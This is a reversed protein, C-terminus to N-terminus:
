PLAARGVFVESRDLIVLAQARDMVMTPVGVSFAFLTANPGGGVVHQLAFRVRYLETGVEDVLVASWDGPEPPVPPVGSQALLTKLYLGQGEQSGAIVLTRQDHRVNAVATALSQAQAKRFEQAKLYHYDSIWYPPCYSMLDFWDPPFMEGTFADRGFVGITGNPHPYEPDSDTNETCNAHLLGFTHGLEHAAMGAGLNEGQYQSGVAIPNGVSAIGGGAIGEIPPMMGYYTRDPAESLRVAAIAQLAQLYTGPFVAPGEPEIRLPERITADVGDIAFRKVTGRLYEDTDIEADAVVLGGYDIPVFTISLTPPEEIRQPEMDARPYTLRSSDVVHLGNGLLVTVQIEAGVEFWEQPLVAVYTQDIAFEGESAHPLCDPGTAVIPEITRSGGVRSVTVDVPVAKPEGDPANQVLYVRVLGSRGTILNAGSVEAVQIFRVDAVEVAVESGEPFGECSSSLFPLNLGDCSVVGLCIALLGLIWARNAKGCSGNTRCLVM